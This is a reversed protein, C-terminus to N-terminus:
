ALSRVSDRLLMRTNLTVTNAFDTYDQRLRTLLLDAATRAIQEIPQEVLTLPPDIVDLLEFYDFGILSVDEPIRLHLKQLAMVTGLTAHFHTAFVATPPADSTFLDKIATYESSEAFWESVVWDENVPLNYTQLAQTYGKFREGFVYVDHKGNVIAIRTHQHLILQEVARFSAHANDVMIVDTDFGPLMQEIVVVPVTEDLFEQLLALNDPEINSPFLILGDVYRDKVFHLKEQLNRPDHSYDCLLLSYSHQELVQALLKTVAMFFLTLYSPIMVAVTMSRNRKLSKAIVNQKFGLEAIAQEVKLRNEERLQYGNLYRSVTGVAVNAREAVDRITVAM